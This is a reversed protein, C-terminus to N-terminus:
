VRRMLDGLRDLLSGIGGQRQSATERGDLFAAQETCILRTGAGDAVFEITALSVSIRHEGSYMDYSYLIREPARIDHYLAVYRFPQGDPEIGSSTETGGVRFDMAYVDTTNTFWHAKAVPDAWAAFVRAPAAPYVRETIITAHTVSREPM